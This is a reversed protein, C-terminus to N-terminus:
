MTELYIVLFKSKILNKKMALKVKWYLINPCQEM